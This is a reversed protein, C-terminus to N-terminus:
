RTSWWAAASIALCGIHPTGSNNVWRKRAMCCDVGPWATSPGSSATGTTWDIGFTSFCCKTTRWQGPSIGSKQSIEEDTERALLRAEVIAREEAELSWRLRHAEVIAPDESLTGRALDRWNTDQHELLFGYYAHVYRDDQSRSPQRPYPQNGLLRLVRDCRWCRSRLPDIKRPREVDPIGGELIMRGARENKSIAIGM